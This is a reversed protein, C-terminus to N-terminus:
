WDYNMVPFSVEQKLSLFFILKYKLKSTFQLPPLLVLQYWALPFDGLGRGWGGTPCFSMLDSGVPCIDMIARRWWWILEGTLMWDIMLKDHLSHFKIFQCKNKQWHNGFYRVNKRNTWGICLQLYICCNKKLTQVVERLTVTPKICFLGIGAIFTPRFGWIKLM